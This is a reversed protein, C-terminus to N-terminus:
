YLQQNNSHTIELIVDANHATFDPSAKFAVNPIHLFLCPIVSSRQHTQKEM